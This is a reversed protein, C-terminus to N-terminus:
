NLCFEFLFKRKVQVDDKAESKKEVEKDEVSSEATVSDNDFAGGYRKLLEEISLNETINVYM